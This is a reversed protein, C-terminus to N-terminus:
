ANIVVKVLEFLCKYLVGIQKLSLSSQMSGKGEVGLAMSQTQVDGFRLVKWKMSLHPLPHSTVGTKSRLTPCYNLVFILFKPTINMDIM